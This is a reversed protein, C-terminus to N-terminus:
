SGSTAPAIPHNARFVDSADYRAKIAQLREYAEGSYAVSTDIPEEAFNLYATGADWPAMAAFVGDLTRGIAEAAGPEMVMGVGFLAFDGDLRDLAGHGEGSRGVAGGLQRLELMLLNSGSGPGGAAVFADIAESTLEGLMMHGGRAPVPEPPDMHLALLGATPIMEFTDMEPGLERLAQLVESGGAEDGVYAGDIVVIQRGRLPEPIDPLPPVQLIRMSTTIEDPATATWTRWVDIVEASREWPWVLMGAYVEAVPHLELELETVVGFNGGGGRLAWFLDPEHEADTRVLRGDATVIEIATISNTALGYKRALWSLGGGLSYGVVGVDHSSGALAALGQAGAPVAVDAWLAGAQVRARRAEADIAVSRMESTKVLITDELGALASANHGTGQAAVRLGHERAFNVVTVVDEVTEPMAVATPRQDVALNWAQRAIDWGEDGPLVLAGTLQARLLAADLRLTDTILMLGGQAYTSM